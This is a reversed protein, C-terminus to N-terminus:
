GVREALSTNVFARLREVNGQAALWEAALEGWSRWPSYLESLHFGAVSSDPSQGPEWRGRAIM